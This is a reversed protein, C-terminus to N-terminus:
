NNIILYIGQFRTHAKLANKLVLVRPCNTECLYNRYTALASTWISKKESVVSGAISSSKM